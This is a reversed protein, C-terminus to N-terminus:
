CALSRRQSGNRWFHSSIITEVHAFWFTEIEWCRKCRCQVRTLVGLIHGIGQGSVGLQRLETGFEISGGLM